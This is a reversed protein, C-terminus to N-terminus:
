DIWCHPDPYNVEGGIALARATCGGLCDAYHKCSVCKGQPIKNRMKLLLKSNDWVAKLDDALINGIGKPIFGCPTIEGDAKLRLSLKGCSSGKIVTKEKKPLNLAASIPDDVSIIVDNESDRLPLIWQYFEQWELPTLDLEERNLYGNGSCKYNHFSIKRVELRRALEIIEALEKFNHRNVVTSIDVTIQADRLLEIAKVTKKYGDEQKRLKAHSLASAGDLSVEVKVLGSEKIRTTLASDILSGNTSLTFRVGKKKGAIVIDFLDPLLLPEGGGLNVFPIQYHVLKDLIKRRLDANAEIHQESRSYCHACHYNCHYTINWNVLLPLAPITEHQPM